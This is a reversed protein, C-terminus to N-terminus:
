ARVVPSSSIAFMGVQSPQNSSHVTNFIGPLCIWHAKRAEIVWPVGARFIIRVHLQIFDGFM